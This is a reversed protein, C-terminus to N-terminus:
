ICDGDCVFGILADRQEIAVPQNEVRGSFRFLDVSRPDDPLLGSESGALREFVGGAAWKGSGKAGHTSAVFHASLISSSELSLHPHKLKSLWIGNVLVCTSFKEPDVVLEDGLEDM